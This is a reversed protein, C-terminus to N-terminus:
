LEEGDSGGVSDTAHHHQAHEIPTMLEINDPWNDWTHGNKHHVHMGRVARFGYESVALLRHVFVSHYEGRFATTWKRYGREEEVYSPPRERHPTQRPIGFGDFRNWVTRYSYGTRDAIDPLSLGEDHYLRRLEDPDNITEAMSCSM